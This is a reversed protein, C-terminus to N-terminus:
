GAVTRVVANACQKEVASHAQEEQPRELCVPCTSVARFSVHLIIVPQKFAVRIDQKYASAPM